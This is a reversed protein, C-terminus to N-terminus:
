KNKRKPSGSASARRALEEERFRLHDESVYDPDYALKDTGTEVQRRTSAPKPKVANLFGLRDKLLYLGGALLALLTLYTM